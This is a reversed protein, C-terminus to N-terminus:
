ALVGLNARRTAERTTTVSTKESVPNYVNWNNYVTPGALTSVPPDGPRRGSPIRGPEANQNASINVQAPILKTMDALTKRLNGQEAAFGDILSQIIWRGNQTLLKKDTKEPGKWDPILGTVTNLASKVKGIAGNIGDLLGQIIRRGADALWSGASSFAGTVANKIGRIVGLVKDIWGKVNSYIKSWIGNASSQTRNFYSTVINWINTVVTKIGAYLNKLPTIVYAQIKIWVRQAFSALSNWIGVVFDKMTTAAKTVYPGIFDWVAKVASKILGWVVLWGKYILDLPVTIAVIIIALALKIINIVLEFAAKVVPGFISWLKSWVTTIVNAIGNIIALLVNIATQVVTTIINWQLKWGAVLIKVAGVLVKIIVDAVKIFGAILMSTINIVVTIAKVLGIILFTTFKIMVPLVYKIMLDAIKILGLLFAGVLVAAVIGVVKIIPWLATWLQKLAPLIDNMFTNALDNAAPVVTGTFTESISEWADKLATLIQGGAQKLVPLVERQFTDGLQKIAEWLTRAADGVRLFFEMPGSGHGEADRFGEVVANWATKVANLAAVFGDRIAKGISNVLDRFPAFKKYAIVIAAVVAAIAVGWPGFAFAWAFRLAALVKPFRILIKLLFSGIKQFRTFVVGARGTTAALATVVGAGGRMAKFGVTFISFVQKLAAFGLFKALMPTLVFLLKIFIGTLLSTVSGLGLMIAITQQVPHPLNNFVNVMSTIADVFKRVVPLFVEGIVILMTEFSGKLQEISGNLNDLRTAAVDAATVKGMAGAMEDYGAAGEKALVGAARIADSGFLINLTNLKQEETLGKTSKFLLEQIDRLSKAKGSADFFANGVVGMEQGMALAASRNKQTGVAGAGQAAAYEQLATNVDDFSTSAPKLGKSVLTRMDVGAKVTILGLDEMLGVQKDTTPILNTLLTKLSTGADSGKIGAQGMEAIAVSLDDFKIGTLNAVAGAQSLSFGFDTVDIASANAAGAILDSVHVMDSGKLNFQNLANAAIEAATTLDVSGAAALNVTADAAGTMVDQTSVGAKILAEMAGAAETSSFVTDKGLRLATQRIGEMEQNTAGSVAKIASLGAEFSAAAKVAGGLGISGSAGIKILNEGLREVSDLKSQVAAYFANAAVTAVGFGKQAGSGDIVIRGEATGLNFSV